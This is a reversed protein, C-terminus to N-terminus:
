LKRKVGVTEGKYTSVQSTVHGEWDKPSWWSGPLLVKDGVELPEGEWHYTYGKIVVLQRGLSDHTRGNNIVDKKALEANIADRVRQAIEIEDRGKADRLGDRKGAAYAEATYELFKEHAPTLHAKCPVHFNTHGRYDRQARARCPAGSKTPKGCIVYNWIDTPEDPKLLTTM